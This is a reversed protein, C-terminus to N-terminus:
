RRKGHLVYHRIDGFVGARHFALLMVTLIPGIIIGLVGFLKLGVFMSILTPLPDMGVNSALVKPELMQRAVLIIAFLVSLGIGLGVNGYLFTYVIWPVFVAGVGFYPLLDVFGILLGITLAYEVRLVFLGTIVFAATVSVLLLQARVYGGLARQLDMWIVFTTRRVRSPFWGNIRTVLRYWDKGIFFAAMLVIVSITALAPLSSIFSVLGAFFGAILQSGTEALRAATQSLNTNISEHYDPNEEYFTNLWGVLEQIDPRAVFQEFWDQWWQITGDLSRSVSLVEAVVKSVLGYVIGLLAATFVTLSVLVALWRPFRARRQLFNVPPNLLYAIFWGLLFPYVLPTVYRLLFVIAVIFFAVWLARLLRQVLVRDL